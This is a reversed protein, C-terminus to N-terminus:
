RPRRPFRSARYGHSLRFSRARMSRPCACPCGGRAGGGLASRAVSWEDRGGGPEHDFVPLDRAAVRVRAIKVDPAYREARADLKLSYEAGQKRWEFHVRNFNLNLGSITPNYGAFETQTTDIEDIRPLAGDWVSFAGAIRTVGRARLAAALDGLMDTDLTPDGSGALVLDGQLVGDVVPGTAWLETRFRHGAGLTELAYAATVTKAVSAPPLRRLLERSEVFAGTQADVLAFAVTGSLGAEAIIQEASPLAKKYLDRPRPVPFPSRTVTEALAPLVAGALTGVLGGLVARRHMKLCSKGM